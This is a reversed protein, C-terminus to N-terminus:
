ETAAYPNLIQRGFLAARDLRTLQAADAADEWSERITTVQHDVIDRANQPTLGYDEAAAVCTAFTSSRQGSRSIDM